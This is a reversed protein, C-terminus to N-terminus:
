AAIGVPQDAPALITALLDRCATALAGRGRRAPPDGRELADALGAEPRLEAALPLCLSEAVRDPPVGGSGVDRAVVRLDSVLDTVTSAVMSAAAVARVRTPVVLLALDALRLARETAPNLQRPVDVVTLEAALRAARLVSEVANAPLAASCDRGASLVAVGHSVPLTDRLVTAPLRGSVSELDRWRAGPLDEAGFTLDVGGGFPDLDAILTSHGSSAAMIALAVALVTAGAGGRGGIVAVTKGPEDTDDAVDGFSRVVDAEADPLALVQKAGMDVAHRWMSPEAEGRCVLLVGSRRPLRTAPWAAAADASVLVLPAGSWFPTAAVADAVTDVNLGQSAALRILEDLLSQDETVVLPRRVPTM